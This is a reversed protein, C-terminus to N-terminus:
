KAENLIQKKKTTSKRSAQKRKKEYEEKTLLEDFRRMVDAIFSNGDLASYSEYLDHINTYDWDNRYGKEVCRYYCTLIDNRLSSLTGGGIADLKKSMPIVKEDIKDCITKVLQAYEQEAKMYELEKLKKKKEDNEKDRKEFFKDLNRKILYGVIGSVLASAAISILTIAWGPMDLLVSEYIM